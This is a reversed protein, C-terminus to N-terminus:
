TTTELISGISYRKTIASFVLEPGIFMARATMIGDESFSKSGKDRIGEGYKNLVTEIVLREYKSLKSPDSSQLSFLQSLYRNPILSNDSNLHGVCKAPTRNKKLAKNWVSECVYCYKTNVGESLFQRYIVQSNVPPFSM